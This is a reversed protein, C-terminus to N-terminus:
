LVHAFAALFVFVPDPVAKVSVIYFLSVLAITIETSHQSIQADGPAEVCCNLSSTKIKWMGVCLVRRSHLPHDAINCMALFVRIEYLKQSYVSYLFSVVEAFFYSVASEGLHGVKADEM